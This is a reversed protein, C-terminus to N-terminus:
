DAREPCLNICIGITDPKDLVQSTQTVGPALRVSHRDDLHLVRSRPRM